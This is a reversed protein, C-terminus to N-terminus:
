CTGELKSSHHERHGIFLFSGNVWSLFRAYQKLGPSARCLKWTWTFMAGCVPFASAFEALTASLTVIALAGLPWGIAFPGPGGMHGSNVVGFITGQLFGINTFCVSFLSFADHDRKLEDPYGLQDLIKYQEQTSRATPTSKLSDTEGETSVPLTLVTPSSPISPPNQNRWRKPSKINSLLGRRSSPVSSLSPQSYGSLTGFSQDADSATALSASLDNSYSSHLLPPSDVFRVSASSSPAHGLINGEVGSSDSLAPSPVAPSTLAASGSQGVSKGGEKEAHNDWATEM